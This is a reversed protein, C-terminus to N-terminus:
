RKITRFRPALFCLEGRYAGLRHYKRKPLVFSSFGIIATGSFKGVRVAHARAGPQVAAIAPRSKPLVFGIPSPELIEASQRDPQRSSEAGAKGRCVAAL